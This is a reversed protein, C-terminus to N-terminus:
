VMKMIRTMSQIVENAVNSTKELIDKLPKSEPSNNLRVEAYALEITEIVLENKNADFSSVEFKVPYAHSFEWSKVAEDGNVLSVTVTVPQFEFNYIANECWAVFKNPHPVVGKKLVLNPLKVSKPLKYVRNNEGGGWVEDYPIDVQIGSVEVFPINDADVGEGFDVRFSFAPILSYIEEEKRDIIKQAM